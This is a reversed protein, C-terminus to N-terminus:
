IQIEGDDSTHWLGAAVQSRRNLDLKRLIHHVHNKVTAVSIGLTAAIKKNSMGRRLLAVVQTERPTLRAAAKRARRDRHNALSRRHLREFLASAVRPSCEVRGRMANRITQALDDLSADRSAYASVGAEAWELVDQVQDTVGIAVVRAEPLARRVERVLDIGGEVADDILVIDPQTELASRLGEDASAAAGVVEFGEFAELVRRLGERYFRVAAVIHVRTM